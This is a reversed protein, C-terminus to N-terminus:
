RYNVVYIFLYDFVDGVCFGSVRFRVVGCIFWSVWEGLFLM